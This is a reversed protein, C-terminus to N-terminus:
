ILGRLKEVAAKTLRGTLGDEVLIAIGLRNILKQTELVINTTVIPPNVNIAHGIIGEAIAKGIADVGLKKYLAVDTASDLFFCEVITAPMDTYKLEYLGRVDKKAGRNTFGLKSINNSIRTAYGKGKLSTYLCETGHGGGANLHISVFIDSKYTNAKSVGYSLDIPSTCNGPTVDLVENKDLKLYKNVSALIKRDEIVENLIAIAGQAQQNHGGRDSIKIKVM